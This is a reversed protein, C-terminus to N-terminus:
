LKVYSSLLGFKLLSKLLIIWFTSKNKIFLKMLFYNIIIAFISHVIGIGIFLDDEYETFNTTILRKNNKPIIYGM